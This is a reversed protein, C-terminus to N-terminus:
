ARQWSQVSAPYKTGWPGGAFDQLVQRAAEEGAAAYIPRL